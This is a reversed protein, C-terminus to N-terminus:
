NFKALAAARNREGTLNSIKGDRGVVLLAAGRLALQRVVPSDFGRAGYLQEGPLGAAAAVQVARPVDSSFNVGFIVADAPLLAALQAAAQVSREDEPRWSYFVTLKGDTRQLLPAAGPVEGLVSSLTRGPLTLWTALQGARDKTTPSAPSDALTQAIRLARAVDSVDAVALLEDYASSWQPFQQVLRQAAAEREVLWAERGEFKKGNISAKEALWAVDFRAATPQNANGSVARAKALLDAGATEVTLLGALLTFRAEQYRREAVDSSQPNARIAAAAQEALALFEQRSNERRRRRTDPDERTSQGPGSPAAVSPTDAYGRDALALSCVLGLLLARVSVILSSPSHM